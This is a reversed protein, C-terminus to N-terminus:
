NKGSNHYPELYILYVGVELEMAASSISKDELVQMLTQILDFNKSLRLV